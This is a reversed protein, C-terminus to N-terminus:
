GRKSCRLRWRQYHLHGALSATVMRQPTLYTDEGGMPYAPPPSCSPPLYPPLISCRTAEGAMWSLKVSIDRQVLLQHELLGDCGVFFMSGQKVDQELTQVFPRRQKVELGSSLLSPFRSYYLKLKGLNIYQLHVM